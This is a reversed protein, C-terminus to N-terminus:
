AIGNFLFGKTVTFLFALWQAMKYERGGKIVTPSACGIYHRASRRLIRNGAPAVNNERRTRPGIWDTCPIIKGHTFHNHRSTLEGDVASTLFPPPM